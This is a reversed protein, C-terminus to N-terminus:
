RSSDSNFLNTIKSLLWFSSNVWVVVDEHGTNGILTFHLDSPNSHTVTEADGFSIIALLASDRNLDRRKEGLAICGM